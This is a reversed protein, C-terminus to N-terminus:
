DRYVRNDVIRVRDGVRLQGEAVESVALSGGSDLRVNVRYRDRTNAKEVQNGVAAGGIAGAITAVTQGTGGGIQHGLVGGAIGGIIAGVGIPTNSGPRYVQISEVVGYETRQTVVPRPAYQPYPEYYACGGALIGGAALALGGIRLLTNKMSTELLNHICRRNRRAAAFRPRRERSDRHRRDTSRCGSSRGTRDFDCCSNDAHDLGPWAPRYRDSATTVIPWEGM